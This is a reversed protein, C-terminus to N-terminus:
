ADTIVGVGASDLLEGVVFACTIVLETARLSEDRQFRVRAPWKELFGIAYRPSVIMGARDAGSNATPVNSTISWVVGYLERLGGGFSPVAGFANTVQAVSEAGTTGAPTITAGVAGAVDNWQQPHMIGHYPGFVGAASLQTIGDLINQETLNVGSGGVSNSFGVALATIDTTVKNALAMSAQMAYHGMDVIDSENLLDTIALVLGAEAVTLTVKTTSYQTFAADSGELLSAATLAGSIPFDAATTPSGAISEFRTMHGAVNLGYFNPLIRSALLEAALVYDDASTTTTEFAM